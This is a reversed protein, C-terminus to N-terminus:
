HTNPTAPAWLPRAPELSPLCRGAQPGGRVPFWFTGSFSPTEWASSSSSTPPSPWPGCQSRTALTCRPHRHRASRLCPGQATDAPCGPGDEVKRGVRRPCVGPLQPWGANRLGVAQCGARRSHASLPWRRQPGPLRLGHPPWLVAALSHAQQSALHACGPSGAPPARGLACGGPLLLCGLAAGGHAALGSGPPPPGPRWGRGPSVQRVVRGSRADLVAITNSSMSVLLHSPSSPGFCLAVASDLCSGALDLASVDIRLLQLLLM